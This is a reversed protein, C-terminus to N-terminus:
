PSSPGAALTGLMWAISMGTLSLLFGRGCQHSYVLYGYPSTQREEIFVRRGSVNM